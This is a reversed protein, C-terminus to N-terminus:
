KVEWPGFASPKGDDEWAIEYYAANRFCFSLARLWAYGDEPGRVPRSTLPDTGKVKGMDEMLRGTLVAKGDIIEATGTLGDMVDTVILKM